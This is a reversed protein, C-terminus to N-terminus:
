PTGMYLSKLHKGHFGFSRGVWASQINNEISFQDALLDSAWVCAYLKELHARLDLCIMYDEHHHTPQVNMSRLATLLKRSRLSFGGNGVTHSLNWSMPWCAGVYDCMLFEPTWSQSNVAFGDTQIILCHDEQILQPLLQLCVRNYDLPFQQIPSILIEDQPVSFQMPSPVDSIWYVKHAPSCASLVNLTHQMAEAAQAHNRTDIICVALTM